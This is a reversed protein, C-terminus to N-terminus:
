RPPGTASWQLWTAKPRLNYKIGIALHEEDEVILIHNMPGDAPLDM